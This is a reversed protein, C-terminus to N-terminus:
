EDESPSVQEWITVMDDIITEKDVNHMTVKTGDKFEMEFGDEVDTDTIAFRLIMEGEVDDIYTGEDDSTM